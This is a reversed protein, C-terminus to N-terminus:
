EAVEDRILAEILDGNYTLDALIRVVTPEFHSKRQFVFTNDDSFCRIVQANHSTAIFQGNQNTM